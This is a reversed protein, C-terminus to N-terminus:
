QYFFVRIGVGGEFNGIDVPRESIAPRFLRPLGFRLLIDAGAGLDTAITYGTTLEAGISVSEPELTYVTTRTEVLVYFDDAPQILLGLRGTIDIGVDDGFTLGVDGGTRLQLTPDLEIWIPLSADVRFSSGEALPFTVRGYVAIGFGDVPIGIGVFASPDRLDTEPWVQTPFPTGGITIFDAIGYALSGTVGVGLDPQGSASLDSARGYNFTGEAALQLVGSRLVIPRRIMRAPFREERTPASEQAAAPRALALSALAALILTPRAWARLHKTM